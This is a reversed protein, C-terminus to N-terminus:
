LKLRVGAKGLLGAIQIIIFAFLFSKLLGVGGTTLAEPFKLKLVTYMLGYAFHPLLYTLLTNTGAPKISDFWNAKGNVDCLWYIFGFFAITIGSCILVWPPTALIKSIIWFQNIFLGAAILVIGVAFLTIIITLPKNKKQMRIFIMSTLMGSTVFAPMAGEGFPALFTRLLSGQPILGSHAAMSTALCLVWFLAILYINARFGAYVLASIMYAWGILGLIGWWFTSFRLGADEGGRYLWALIFLIIWGIVKLATVLKRNSQKPYSNWIFIFSLCALSNFLSRPMGTAEESINEGNVLFLGMVLLALSRLIIHLIISSTSEGKSHRSAISFPVSMGVIVLFAPFVVDALGMGDERAETHGLWEPINSLSWLDNVFIMLLMTLARLVDISALRVPPHAIM